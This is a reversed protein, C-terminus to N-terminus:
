WIRIKEVRAVIISDKELEEKVMNKIAERIVESRSLGHKIAYKDLLELLDENVKFAVKRM